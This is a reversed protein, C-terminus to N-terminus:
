IKINFVTNISDLASAVPATISPVFYSLILIIILIASAIALYIRDEKVPYFYSLLVCAIAFILIYVIPIPNFTGTDKTVTINNSSVYDAEIILRQDNSGIPHCTILYVMQKDKSADLRHSADVVYSKTVTYHIEGIGPWKITVNDGKKLKNLKLFPSGYSTRHGFLVVQGKLPDQSLPEHYVGLNVSENNINEDLDIAPIQVSSTNVNVIETNKYSYYSVEVMAYAAIIVMGIIVLITKKGM